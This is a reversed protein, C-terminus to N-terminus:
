QKLWAKIIAPDTQWKRLNESPHAGFVLPLLGAVPLFKICLKRRSASNSRNGKHGNASHPGTSRSSGLHSVQNM